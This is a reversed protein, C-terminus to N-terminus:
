IIKFKDADIMVPFSGRLEELQKYKLTYTESSEKNPKINSVVMALPDLVISDGSHLINNGDMGIRNLGAVYCQNEIARAILLQKWPFSRRAPWNAVYILLDIDGKSRSWVPFRLDYCILPCVNWGNLDVILREKGQEYTKDEKAMRFLHRKDYHLTKGDPQAWVLRNYFKNKERIVLSGCVVANKNEAMELMWTVSPGDMTEAVGKANMTFGTTFMEPLLILNTSNKRIDKLKKGFHNRNAEAQEWFLTTQLLTIKLDKM